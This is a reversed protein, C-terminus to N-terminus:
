RKKWYHQYKMYDPFDNIKESFEKRQTNKIIKIQNAM